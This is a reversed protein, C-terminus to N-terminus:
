MSFDQLSNKLLIDTLYKKRPFLQLFLGSELFDRPFLQLFLGSELFDPHVAGRGCIM